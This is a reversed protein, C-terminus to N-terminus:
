DGDEGGELDYLIQMIKIRALKNVKPRLLRLSEVISECFLQNSDKKETEDPNKETDDNLNKLLATHLIDDLNNKKDAKESPLEKKKKKKRIEFNEEFNSSDGNRSSSSTIPTSEIICDFSPIPTCPPQIPSQSDDGPLNHRVNINSHTERGSLIDQLFGLEKFFNCTPPRKAGSGSRTIQERRRLCKRYNDKLRAFEKEAAAGLIFFNFLICIAQKLM